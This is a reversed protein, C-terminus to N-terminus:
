LLFFGLLVAVAPVTLNDIDDIPLSEIITGIGAIIFLAPLYHVLSGPFIHFAIYVALVAASFLFGGAFMALSGGYTKRPSWPLTRFRLLKGVVDALGDGGCLLMLAVIGIPNYKWFVITLIVFVIGYLLPGRLIEERRGSRSMAEVAAQDKIIGTGVLFFQLTIAFPVLAALFRSYAVPPFLLWCLVFLPGTGMHIIKRSLPGSIWHRHAFFDNIRLWILALLFTIVLALFPNSLM